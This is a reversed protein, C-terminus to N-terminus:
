YIHIKRHKDRDLVLASFKQPPLFSYTFPTGGLVRRGKRDGMFTRANEEGRIDTTDFSILMQSLLITRNNGSASSTKKGHADNMNCYESTDSNTFFVENSTHFQRKLLLKQECLVRVQSIRCQPSCIANAVTSM